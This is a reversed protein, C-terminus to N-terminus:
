SRLSQSEQFGFNELSQIGKELFNAIGGVGFDEVGCRRPESLWWRARQGLRRGMEGATGEM